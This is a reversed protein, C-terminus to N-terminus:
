PAIGQPPPPGSQGAKIMSKTPKPLNYPPEGAGPPPYFLAGEAKSNVPPTPKATGQHGGAKSRIPFHAVQDLRSGAGGRGRLLPYHSADIMAPNSSPHSSRASMRKMRWQMFVGISLRSVSCLRAM